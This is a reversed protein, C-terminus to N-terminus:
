RLTNLRITNEEMKLPQHALAQAVALEIVSMPM